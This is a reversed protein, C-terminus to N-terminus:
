YKKKIIFLEGPPSGYSNANYGGATFSFSFFIIKPLSLFFWQGPPQNPYPNQYPQQQNYPPYGDYGGYGGYGGIM